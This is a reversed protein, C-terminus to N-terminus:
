QLHIVKETIVANGIQVRLFYVGSELGASNIDATHSGASKVENQINQIIRGSLDVLQLSVHENNELQYSVRTGSSFPNPYVSLGIDQAQITQVSTPGGVNIDDIYVNNGSNSVVEFKFLLNRKGV